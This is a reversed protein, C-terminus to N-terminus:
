YRLILTAGGPGPAIMGTVPSDDDAMETVILYSTIAGAALVGSAVWFATSVTAATRADDCLELTCTPGPEAADGCAPDRGTTVNCKDNHDSQAGLVQVGQITAVIAASLAGVGLVAPLLYNPEGAPEVTTVAVIAPASPQEPPADIAPTEVGGSSPPVVAGLAPEGAGQLPVFAVGVRTERGAHVAGSWRFPEFGQQRVEVTRRGPPLKGLESPKIAVGELFVEAGELKGVASSVYLAISGPPLERKVGYALALQQRLEIASDATVDTLELNATRVKGSAVDVITATGKMAEPSGTFSVRVVQSAAITRAIAQLCANGADACGTAERLGAFDLAPRPLLKGRAPLVSQLEERMAADLANLAADPLGPAELQLALISTGQAWAPSSVGALAAAVVSTALILPITVRGLM